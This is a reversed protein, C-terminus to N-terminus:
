EFSLVQVDEHDYPINEIRSWKLTTANLVNFSDKQTGRLWIRDECVFAGRSNTVEKPVLIRSWNSTAIDFVFHVLSPKMKQGAKFLFGTEFYEGIVHLQNSCFATLTNMLSFPLSTVERWKDLDPYYAYIQSGSFGFIRNFYFCSLVGNLEKCPPSSILTRKLSLTMPDRSLKHSRIRGFRFIQNEHVCTESYRMNSDNSVDIWEGTIMDLLKARTTEVIVNSEFAHLTKIGNRILCSQENQFEIVDGRFQFFMLSRGFKFVVCSSNYEICLNVIVEPLHLNLVNALSM